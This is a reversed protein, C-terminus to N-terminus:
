VPVKAKRLAKVADDIADKGGTLVGMEDESFGMGSPRGDKGAWYLVRERMIAYADASLGAAEAGKRALVGEPGTLGAPEEPQEPEKGCAEVLRPDETSQRRTEAAMGSMALAMRRSQELQMANVEAVYEKQRRQTEPDNKGSQVENAIEQGRVALDEVYAAFEEDGMEDLAKQTKAENAERAKAESERFSEVCADYKERRADYEKEAKEYDKAARDHAEVEARYAAEAGKASAAEAKLGELLGALRAETIELVRDDFTPPPPAVYLAEDVKGDAKAKAAAKAKRALGGLQADVAAPLTLTTLLLALLPAARRITGKM